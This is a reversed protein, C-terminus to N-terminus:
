VIKYFAAADSLLIANVKTSYQSLIRYVKKLPTYHEKGLLRRVESIPAFRSRRPYHLEPQM